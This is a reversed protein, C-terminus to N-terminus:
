GGAIRGSGWECIAELVEGEGWQNRYWAVKYQVTFWSAATEEVVNLVAWMWVTGDGFPPDLDSGFWWTVKLYGVLTNM